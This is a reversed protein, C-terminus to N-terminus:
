KILVSIPSTIKNQMCATRKMNVTYVTYVKTRHFIEGNKLLFINLFLAGIIICKDIDIVMNNFQRRIWPQKIICYYKGITFDCNHFPGSLDFNKISERMYFNKLFLFHRVYANGKLIGKRMAVLIFYFLMKKGEQLM